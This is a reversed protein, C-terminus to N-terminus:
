FEKWRLAQAWSPLDPGPAAISRHGCVGAHPQPHETAEQWWKSRVFLIVELSRIHAVAVWFVAYLLSSAAAHSEPPFHTSEPQPFALSSPRKSGLFVLHPAIPSISRAGGPSPEEGAQSTMLPQSGPLWPHAESPDVLARFHDAPKLTLSFTDPPIELLRHGEFHPMAKFLQCSGMQTSLRKLWTQSETIGFVIASWAGRDMSNELCSYQLPNGNREGPSRGGGLPWVQTEWTEQM